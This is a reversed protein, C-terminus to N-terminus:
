PTSLPDVMHPPWATHTTGLRSSRREEAKSPRTRSPRGSFTTGPQAATLGTALTTPLVSFSFLLFMLIGLYFYSMDKPRLCWVGLVVGKLLM